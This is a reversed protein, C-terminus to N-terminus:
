AGQDLNILDRLERLLRLEAVRDAQEYAWSAHAYAERKVLGELCAKEKQELIASLRRFAERAAMLEAKRQAKEDDDKCDGYWAIKM